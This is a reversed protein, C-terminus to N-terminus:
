KRIHNKGHVVFKRTTLDKAGMPGFAHLKSTSIGIEAGLGLEGGDAFRTSANVLVTSSQVASIFNAASAEDETIIAETHSSGYDAIHDLASELSPVVRIALTLDLYEAHWDEETALTIDFGELMKMTESCGRITVGEDTLRAGVKPLIADAIDSHVLLTELANCVGPRQVKANSVIGPVKEQSASKDVFIHCVGKYHQIVPIRSKETVARILSEGGRPIVLDIWEDQELLADVADRNPTTILQIASRPLSTKSLGNRLAEAIAQNSHFAESGGRLIVANGARLCLAAADSTVNPRSEYIMAIVGLPIRMRGVELGNPRVQKDEISNLPDPQESIERVAASIKEIGNKGLDLRNLMAGSIGNKKATELDISNAQVILEKQDLLENAMAVLAANREEATSRVLLRAAQRAEKAMTTIMKGIEKSYKMSM